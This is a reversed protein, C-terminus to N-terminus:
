QGPYSSWLNKAFVTYDNFRFWEDIASLSVKVKIRQAQFNALRTETRKITSSLVIVPLVSSELDDYGLLTVILNGSGMVRARFANAHLINGDAM